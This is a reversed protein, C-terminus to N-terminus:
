KDKRKRYLGFITKHFSKIEEQTAEAETKAKIAAETQKQLDEKLRSNDELLYENRVQYEIQKTIVKQAELMQEQMEFIKAKLSENEAELKEITASKDDSVVVLPSNRRKQIIFDTAWQDLYRVRSKTIIHGELQDQYKLILKRIAQYSVKQDKAIDAITSMGEM